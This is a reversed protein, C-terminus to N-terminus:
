MVINPIVWDGEERVQKMFLNPDHHGKTMVIYTDGGVSKSELPYVKDSM